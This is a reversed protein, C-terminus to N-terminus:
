CKYIYNYNHFFELQIIKIANNLSKEERTNLINMDPISSLM